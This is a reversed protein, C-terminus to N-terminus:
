GIHVLSLFERDWTNPIYSTVNEDGSSGRLFQTLSHFNAETMFGSEIEGRYMSYLENYVSPNNRRIYGLYEFFHPMERLEYSLQANETPTQQVRIPRNVFEVSSDRCYLIDRALRYGEKLDDEDPRYDLPLHALMPAFKLVSLREIFEDHTLDANDIALKKLMLFRNVLNLLQSRKWKPESIRFEISGYQSLPLLNLSTYKDWINVIHNFFRSDDYNFAESANMVQAQVVAFAPCFNSRYRHFGSCKFLMKEYFAYALITKKVINSDADRMDVHVHTSCRWTGEAESKAVAESLNHIARFLQQGNYPQECVMECGNRLSGDETCNWLSAELRNIGELELEIGVGCQMVISPHEATLRPERKGFFQAVTTM